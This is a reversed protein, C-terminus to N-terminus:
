AFNVHVTERVCPPRSDRTRLYILGRQGIRLSARGPPLSTEWTSRRELRDVIGLFHRTLEPLVSLELNSVFKTRIEVFFSGGVHKFSRSIYLFKAKARDSQVDAQLM